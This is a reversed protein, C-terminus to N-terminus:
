NWLICAEHNLNTLLNDSSIRRLYPKPAAHCAPIYHVKFGTDSEKFILKVKKKKRKADLSTHQSCSM